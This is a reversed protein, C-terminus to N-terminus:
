YTVMMRSTSGLVLDATPMFLKAGIFHFNYRVRVEVFSGVSNDPLWATTVDVEGLGIANQEVRTEIADDSVPSGVGHVMAYRAGQRAAYSLTTYTWIARGGEMLGMMITLYLLFFLTFEVMTAGRRKPDAPRRANGGPTGTQRPTSSTM